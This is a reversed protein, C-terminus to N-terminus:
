SGKAIRQCKSLRVGTLVNKKLFEGCANKQGDESELVDVALKAGDIQKWCTEFVATKAFGIEPAGSKLRLADAAASTLEPSKCVKEKLTAEKLASNFYPMAVWKTSYRRSVLMGSDMALKGNKPDKAIFENLLTKCEALYYDMSFCEDFAKLGQSNRKEMFSKNSTLSPYDDILEQSKQLVKVPNEETEALRGIAAKAVLDNYASTRATPPVTKASDLAQKWNKQDVLTKIDAETWGTASLQITFTLILYSIITRIM